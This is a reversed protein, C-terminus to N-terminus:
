DDSLMLWAYAALDGREKQVDALARKFALQRDMGMTVRHKAFSAAFTYAEDVRIPWRTVVVTRAGATLFSLALRSIAEGPRIGFDAAAGAGDCALLLATDISIPAITMIAEATLKGSPFARDPGFSLSPQRHEDAVSHTLFMALDFTGGRLADLVQSASSNGVTRAHPIERMALKLAHTAPIPSSQIHAHDDRSFGIVGESRIQPPSSRVMAIRRVSTAYSISYQKGLEVGAVTRLMEFPIGVLEEDLVLTLRAGPRPLPVGHILVKSLWAVLASIEAQDKRTDSSEVRALLTRLETAANKITQTQCNPISPQFTSLKRDRSLFWVVPPRCEIAHAIGLVMEDAAVLRAFQSVGLSARTDDVSESAGSPRELFAHTRNLRSLSAIVADLSPARRGHDVLTSVDDYAAESLLRWAHDMCQNPGCLARHYTSATNHFFRLGQHKLRWGLGQATGSMDRGTGAIVMDQQGALELLSYLDPYSRFFPFAKAFQNETWCYNAANDYGRIYRNFDGILFSERAEVQHLGCYDRAARRDKESAALASRILEDCTSKPQKWGKECLVRAPANTASESPLPSPRQAEVSDACSMLAIAFTFSTTNRLLAGIM